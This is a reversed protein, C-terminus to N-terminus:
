KFLKGRRHDRSQRSELNLMKHSYKYISINEHHNIWSLFPRYGQALFCSRQQSRLYFSWLPSSAGEYRIFSLLYDNLSLFTFLCWTINPIVKLHCNKQRLDWECAYPSCYVILHMNNPIFEINIINFFFSSDFLM